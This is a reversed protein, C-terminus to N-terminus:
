PWATYFPLVQQVVDSGFLYGAGRPSIGWGEIDLFFPSFAIDADFSDSTLDFPIGHRLNCVVSGELIRISLVLICALISKNCSIKLKNPIVLESLNSLWM